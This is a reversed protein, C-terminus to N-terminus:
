TMDAVSEGYRGLSLFFEAFICINAYSKAFIICKYGSQMWKPLEKLAFERFSCRMLFESAIM